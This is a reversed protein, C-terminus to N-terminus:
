LSLIPINVKALVMSISLNDFDSAKLKMLEGGNGGFCLFKLFSRHLLPPPARFFSKFCLVGNM